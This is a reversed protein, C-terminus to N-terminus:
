PKPPTPSHGCVCYSVIDLDHDSWVWRNPVYEWIRAEDDGATYEDGGRHITKVLTMRGVPIGEGDHQIWIEEKESM